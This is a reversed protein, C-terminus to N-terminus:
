SIPTYTGTVSITQSNDTNAFSGKVSTGYWIRDAASGPGYWVVDSYADGDFNGPVPTYNGNVTVGFGTAFSLNRDGSGFWMTDSASGPAYWFIDSQGNGNFDGVFPTYVGTVSITQSADVNDFAGKVSTGYWLRDAASGPGYWVVDAYGDGDFDGALPIYSGNVDVAYGTAFSDNRNTGFWMTDHGGGPGYWFIDDKGNGNFDGVLPAYTGNVEITQSADVNDFSGKVSTGYWIRDPLSGPGYWVVDSFGDGDFDGRLPLYDGNVDVNYGTAFSDNRNTGFWMTDSASGPGYWFIDDNGNGNFDAHDTGTNGSGGSSMGGVTGLRYARRVSDLTVVRDHRDVKEDYAYNSDIVNFTAGSVHGVIIYTHLPPGPESEGEQVIDGKRLDDIDTIRQAGADEFAQFYHSPSGYGVNIGTAGYVVDNVFQRCQGGHDGEDYHLLAYNAIAANDFSGVASAPAIGLGVVITTAALTVLALVLPALTRRM